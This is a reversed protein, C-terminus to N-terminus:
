DEICVNFVIYDDGGASQSSVWLQIQWPGRMWLNLDDVQFRGAEDLPTIVPPFTGDHGHVPMFSRAMTIEGDDLAAGGLTELDVTWDNLYKQPPAPAAEVLRASVFGDEGQAELGIRFEPTEPPCPAAGADEDSQVGSDREHRMADAETGNDDCAAAAPLAM